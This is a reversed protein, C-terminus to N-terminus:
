DKAPHLCLRSIEDGIKDLPLVTHALGHRVVAGPMGWVVSTAEDQAIVYGSRGAVHRVGDLGDEGMGTLILALVSPGFHEAASRFLPNVSPRCFHEPENQNLETIFHDQRRSIVMHFDGPAVYTTGP